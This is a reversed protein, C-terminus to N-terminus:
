LYKEFAQPPSFVKIPQCAIVTLPQDMTPKRWIENLFRGIDLNSKLPSWM